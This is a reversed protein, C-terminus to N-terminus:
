QNSDSAESASTTTTTTTQPRQDQPKMAPFLIVEKINVTDTLLMCFRDIGMGWGGTPPLGYELATCFNEDIAQAEDDGLDKDKAQAEFRERQAFPDNLETYANCVERQNIFLEFRETLEPESRHYKSLPSMIAPHDCIFTPHTCQSELYNGVLKDLLRATTQPHGCQVDNDACLKILFHRTEESSYPRPITVKLIKELESIM